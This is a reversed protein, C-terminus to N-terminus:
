TQTEWMPPLNKVMQAVLFASKVIRIVYNADPLHPYSLYIPHCETLQNHALFFFIWIMWGYNIGLVLFFFFFLVGDPSM